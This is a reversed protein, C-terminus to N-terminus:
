RHGLEHAMTLVVSGGASLESASVSNTSSCMAGLYAVGAFVGFFYTLLCERERERVCVCVSVCVRVRM